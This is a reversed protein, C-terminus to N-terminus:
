TPHNEITNILILNDSGKIKWSQNASIKTGWWLFCDTKLWFHWRQSKFLSLLIILIYKSQMVQQDSKFCSAACKLIGFCCSYRGHNWVSSFRFWWNCEALIIFYWYQVGSSYYFFWYQLQSVFLFCASDFFKVCLLESCKLLFDQYSLSIKKEGKFSFFFFM